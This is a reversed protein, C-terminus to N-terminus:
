PSPRGYKGTRGSGDVVFLARSSPPRVSPRVSAPGAEGGGPGEAAAARAPRAGRRGPAGWREPSHRVFRVQGRVHGGGGEVGSPADM